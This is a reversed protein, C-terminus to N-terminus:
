NSFLRGLGKRQRRRQMTNLTALEAAMRQEALRTLAADAEPRPFLAGCHACQNAGAPNTEGCWDCRWVDGTGAGVIPDGNSGSALAVSAPDSTAGTATLDTPKPLEATTSADPAVAPVPSMGALPTGCAACVAFGSQLVNGCVPCRTTEEGPPHDM